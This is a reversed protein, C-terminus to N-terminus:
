ASDSSSVGEVGALLAGRARVGTWAGWATAAAASAGSVTTAEALGSCLRRGGSLDALKGFMLWLTLLAASDATVCVLLCWPRSSSDSGSCVHSLLWAPCPSSATSSLMCGPVGVEPVFGFMAHCCVASVGQLRFNGTHLGTRRVLCCLLESALMPCAASSRDEGQEGMVEGLSMSTQRMQSSCTCDVLCSVLVAKACRQDAPDQGFDLPM